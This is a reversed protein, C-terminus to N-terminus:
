DMNIGIIHYGNIGLYWPHDANGLTTAGQHGLVNHPAPLTISITSFCWSIIRQEYNFVKSMFWLQEYNYVTTRYINQHAMM